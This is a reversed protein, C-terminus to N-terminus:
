RDSSKNIKKVVFPGFIFSILLALIASAGARFTIYEFLNLFGFYERLPLLFENLMKKLKTADFTTFQTYQVLKKILILKISCIFFKSILNRTPSSTINVDTAIACVSTDPVIKSVSPFGIGPAVTIM